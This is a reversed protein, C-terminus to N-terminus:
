SVAVQATINGPVIQENDAPQYNRRLIEVGNVTYRRIIVDKILDSSDLITKILTNYVIPAGPLLNNIYRLIGTRARQVATTAVQNVSSAPIILDVSMEFPINAPQSVYMKVGMPRVADMAASALTIAQITDATQDPVILAEFSGMGYPATRIKIDRVGVTNLGAFRVAELTGGSRVRISKIIRARYTEDDEYGIQASISKPNTCLVTVGIPSTFDHVVLTNPGATGVSDTFNPVLSAYAKYYGTPITVDATTSYSFHQGTYSSVDTYVNTGKPILINSAFTNSLYFYFAGLAKDITALNTLSKRTTGYLSGLMDLASGTATSVLNQNFNFDMIDYMDGLETTIAETLARAVSGPSTATISTNKQLKTLAANLIESRSKRIYAPM